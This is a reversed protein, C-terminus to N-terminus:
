EEGSSVDCYKTTHTFGDIDTSDKDCHLRVSGCACDIGVHGSILMHRWISLVLTAQGPEIEEAGVAIGLSDMLMETHKMQLTKEQMRKISRIILFVAGWTVVTMALDIWM